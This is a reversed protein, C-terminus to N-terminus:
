KAGGFPSEGMSNFSFMNFGQMMLNAGAQAKRGARGVNIGVMKSRIDTDFASKQLKLLSKQNNLRNKAFLQSLDRAREDANFANVSKNSIAGASGVGPMQGRASFLARQTAMVERLRETDFLAQQTFALQEEKMRTDLQLQATEFQMAGTQLQNQLGMLDLKEGLRTMKEARRQAYMNMGIGAAQSAMLMYPLM